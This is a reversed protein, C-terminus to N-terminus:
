HRRYHGMFWCDVMDRLVLQIHFIMTFATGTLTLASYRFLMVENTDVHWRQDAHTDPLPDIAPPETVEERYVIDHRERLKLKGDVSFEHTVAVFCLNGSNGSKFSIDDIVSRKEVEDGIGFDDHFELWGGAWM